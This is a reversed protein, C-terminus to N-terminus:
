AAVRTITMLSSMFPSYRVQATQPVDTAGFIADRTRHEQQEYPQAHFQFSNTMHKLSLNSIFAPHSVDSVFGSASLSPLLILRDHSASKVQMQFPAPLQDTPILRVVRGDPRQIAYGHSSDMMAQTIILRMEDGGTQLTTNAAPHKGQTTSNYSPPTIQYVKNNNKHNDNIDSSETRRWNNGLCRDSVPTFQSHQPYDAVSASTNHPTGSVGLQDDIHSESSAHQSGNTEQEVKSKYLGKGPSRPPTINLLPQPM